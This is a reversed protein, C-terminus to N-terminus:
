QHVGEFFRDRYRRSVTLRVETDMLLNIEGSRYSEWERVFRINVMRSRHIRVFKEPDLRTELNSLSDRIVHNTGPLHIRVYHGMGEIWRIQSASVFFSKGRENVVIRNTHKHELRRRISAIQDRLGPGNRQAIYTRARQVAKQFRSADFPKLLYDIADCDFADVAYQDFATVFIVAPLFGPALNKLVGFGNLEPIEVDLFVLDPKAENITDVADRGNDCEAIITLDTESSLFRRIRKRILPEDDVIITKIPNM